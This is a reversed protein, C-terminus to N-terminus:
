LCCDGSGVPTGRVVWTWSKCAPLADCAAQCPLPGFGPDGPSHHKAIIDDGPMDTNNMLRQVPVNTLEAGATAVFGEDASSRAWPVFTENNPYYEGFAFTDGGGVNVLYNPM